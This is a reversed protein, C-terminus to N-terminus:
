SQEPDPPSFEEVPLILYDADQSLKMITESDNTHGLITIVRGKKDPGLVMESTILEGNPNTVTGGNKLLGYEPGPQIGHSLAKQIDLKGATDGEIIRYGLTSANNNLSYAKILFEDNLKITWMLDSNSTAPLSSDGPPPLNFPRFAARYDITKSRDKQQILRKKVMRYGDIRADYFGDKNMADPPILVKWLKARDTLKKFDKSHAKRSFEHILVPSGLYTDSLEMLKMLFSAVGTPGYVHIPIDVGIPNKEKSASITCLVGPLGLCTEIKLSTLFIRCIKGPKTLPHKMCQRQTDEGVDFLWIESLSRIALSPLQRHSSPIWISTGFFILQLRTCNQRMWNEFDLDRVRELERPIEGDVLAFGDRFKRSGNLKLRM